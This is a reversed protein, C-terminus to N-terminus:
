VLQYDKVVIEFSADSINASNWTVEYVTHIPIPLLSSGMSGKSADNHTLGLM